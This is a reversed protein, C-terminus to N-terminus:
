WSFLAFSGFVLTSFIILTNHFSLLKEVIKVLCAGVVFGSARAFFLFSYETEPVHQEDALYPILPGLGTLIAGYAIFSLCYAIFHFKNQNRNVKGWM